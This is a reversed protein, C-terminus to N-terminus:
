LQNDHRRTCFSSFYALLNSSGPPSGFGWVVSYHELRVLLIINLPLIGHILWQLLNLKYVQSKVPFIRLNPEIYSITTLSPWKRRSFINPLTKNSVFPRNESDGFIKPVNPILKSISNQDSHSYFCKNCYQCDYLNEIFYLM